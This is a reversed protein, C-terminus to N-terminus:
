NLIITEIINITASLESIPELYKTQEMAIEFDTIPEGNIYCYIEAEPTTTASNNFLTVVGIAIMAAAATFTSILKIIKASRPERREVIQPAEQDELALSEFGELMIKLAKLEDNLEPTCALLERLEHEQEPTLSAQWYAQALREIINDRNDM